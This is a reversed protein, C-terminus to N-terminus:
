IYISVGLVEDEDLIEEVTEDLSLASDLIYAFIENIYIKDKDLHLFFLFLGGHMAVQLREVLENKNGTTSLGRQKLEARLDAVQLLLFFLILIQSYYFLKSIFSTSIYFFEIIYIIKVM